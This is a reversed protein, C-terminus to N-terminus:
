WLGSMSRVEDLFSLVSPRTAAETVENLHRHQPHTSLDPHHPADDYRLILTSSHFHYRYTLWILTPPDIL